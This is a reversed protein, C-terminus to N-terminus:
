SGVQAAREGPGQKAAGACTWGSTQMWSTLDGVPMPRAIVYGQIYQCDLKRLLAIQSETEVGEVICELHMSHCLAIISTVIGEAGSQELNAVFSRDIKVKDIPLRHLYGLSSYGTGFDDLALKFGAIRLLNLSAQADEISQFVATETIEFTIRSPTIGHTHCLATLEIITEQCSVDHASLNFSLQLRDDLSALEKLAMKFLRTTLRRMLGSREAIPIFQDPAVPGLEKSNWRALAEVCTLTGAEIDIIPQFHVQFEIDMDASQLASEVARDSRISNEHTKSYLTTQGRRESKSHYLAYDSRDFLDHSTQGAEPFTALGCSCGISVLMDGLRYPQSLQECIRQGIQEVNDTLGTAIFGFEDGGLRAVELSADRLQELREGVQALLLDGTKHGYTDNVPKFRDLDIVGVAFRDQEEHGAKVQDNLRAFFYRRNPLGTLADTHALRENEKNLQETERQKEALALRSNILKTFGSYGNLLVQIMVACVLFINMAMAVFVHGQGLYYFMYPLTVATMVLLAAQPLHMLCFICGIVTVAIFLAVHGRALDNGYGDLALSWAIYFTSIVGALVITKRLQQIAEAADIVRSRRKLWVFLRIVCILVLPVLIGITMYTPASDAHTYAVAVANVILLAYLLPVQRQLEKYQAIAIDPKDPDITLWALFNRITNM